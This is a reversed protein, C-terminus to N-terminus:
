ARVLQSFLKAFEAVRRVRSFADVDAPELVQEEGASLRRLFATLGQAIGSPDDIPVLTGVNSKRLLAATEGADDALALIPRRARLYEYLKAPIAPNSNRGQFLLLGDADLMEQLAEGYSIPPALEVIGALGLDDIRPQYVGDFGTARLVIRLGAPLQGAERLISLATFFAGPDRDPGPYLTGSHVLTLRGDVDPRVAREAVEFSEPDFGNAIVEASQGRTRRPYRDLFIQRASDTCFTTATAHRAVMEEIRLRSKRLGPNGPFWEGGIQEVMPDRFDAVWPLGTVRQLVRAIRHATALPYTSWIVDPRFRRIMHLGCPVATGIWSSWRDPLALWDPYRGGISLHRAADLAPARVVVLGDPLDAEPSQSEVDYAPSGATLVLPEWGYGALYRALSLPRQLGSSFSFPPFHFAVILVRKMPASTGHLEQPIIASAITDSSRRALTSMAQWTLSMAHLWCFMRAVGGAQVGACWEGHLPGRRFRREMPTINEQGPAIQQSSRQEVPRADIEGVGSAARDIPVYVVQPM